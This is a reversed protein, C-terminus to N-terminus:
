GDLFKQNSLIKEQVLKSFLQGAATRFATKKELIHNIGESVVVDMQTPCGLERM